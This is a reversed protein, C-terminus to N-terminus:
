LYGLGELQRLTAEDLGVQASTDSLAAFQGCEALWTELAAALRRVVEPNEAAVNRREGPDAQLDFLM